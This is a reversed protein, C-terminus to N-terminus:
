PLLLNDYLCILDQEDRYTARTMPTAISVELVLVLREALGRPRRRACLGSESALSKAASPRRWVILLEVPFPSAGFKLRM